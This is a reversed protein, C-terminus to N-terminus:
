MLGDIKIMAVFFIDLQKGLHAKFAEPTQIMALIKGFPFSASRIFFSQREIFVEECLEFRVSDFGTQLWEGMRHAGDMQNFRESASHATLEDSEVFRIGTSKEITKFSGHFIPHREIFVIHKEMQREKPCSNHEFFTFVPILDEILSSMMLKDGTGKGYPVEHSRDPPVSRHM